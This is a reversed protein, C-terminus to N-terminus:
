YVKVSESCNIIQILKKTVARGIHQTVDMLYSIHPSSQLVLFMSIPENEDTRPSCVLDLCYFELNTKKSASTSPMETTDQSINNTQSFTVIDNHILLRKYAAEFQSATPNDYFESRSRIVM